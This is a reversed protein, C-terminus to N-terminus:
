VESLKNYAEKPDKSGWIASAAVLIDAGAEKIKPANELNVGGDVEIKADPFKQRLTKIKELQNEQFKQGALGPNVALILFEGTDDKYKLLQEVPTDPNSALVLQVGFMGCKMKMVDVDKVAEVHVIVRKVGADLWDDLVEDPNEVMLHVEIHPHQERTAYIGALDKPNNWLTNKTFKGDSVDLHVWGAGFAHAKKIKDEIESFITENIAPIVQM